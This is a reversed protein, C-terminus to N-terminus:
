KAVKGGDKGILSAVLKDALGSRQAQSLLNTLTSKVKGDDALSMMQSLAAAVTLNKLDNTSLGFKDVWTRM